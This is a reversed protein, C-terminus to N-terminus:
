RPKDEPKNETEKESVVPPTALILKQKDKSNVKQQEKKFDKYDDKYDEITVHEGRLCDERDRDTYQECRQMRKQQENTVVEKSMCGYSLVSSLMLSVVFWKKRMMM